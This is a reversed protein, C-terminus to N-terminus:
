WARLKQRHHLHRRRHLLYPTSTTTATTAATHTSDDNNGSDDTPDPCNADSTGTAAAYGGCTWYGWSSADGDVTGDHTKDVHGHGGLYDNDICDQKDQENDVSPDNDTCPEFHRLPNSDNHAVVDACWLIALVIILSLVIRTTKM